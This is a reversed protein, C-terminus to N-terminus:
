SEVVVPKSLPSLLALSEPAHLRVNAKSDTSMATIIARVADEGPFLWALWPDICQVFTFCMGLLNATMSNVYHGKCLPANTLGAAVVVVLFCTVFLIPFDVCAHPQAVHWDWAM